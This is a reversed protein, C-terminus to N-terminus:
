STHAAARAGPLCSVSRTAVVHHRGQQAAVAPQGDGLANQAAYAVSGALLGGILATVVDRPTLM